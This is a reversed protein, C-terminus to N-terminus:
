KFEKKCNNSDLQIYKMFNNNMTDRNLKKNM